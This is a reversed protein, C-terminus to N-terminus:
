TGKPRDYMGEARETTTDPFNSLALSIANDFSLYPFIKLESKQNCNYIFFNNSEFIPKLLTFRNKLEAYTSNNGRISGDHRNQEWAYNDKEKEMKFDCGLLFIRRFGLLYLIKIAALLVSRKGGFKKHNGWNITTQTLFTEANFHENRYYYIINPCDRTILNSYTWTTNDFLRKKPKGIPVFKTILPDKWISIMFKEPDDVCTWLNPRFIKPSNNVGLTIIGPQKLKSLDHTALSPGSLILFCTQDKFMNEIPIPEHDHTSFTLDGGDELM